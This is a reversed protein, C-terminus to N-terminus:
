GLLILSWFKPVFKCIAFFPLFIIFFDFTDIHKLYLQLLQLLLVQKSAAIAEYNRGIRIKQDQWSAAM